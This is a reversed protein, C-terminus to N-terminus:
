VRPVSSQRSIQRYRHSDAQLAPWMSLGHIKDKESLHCCKKTFDVTGWYNIRFTKETQDRFPTPDSGKYAFGANNVLVDVKGYKKEISEFFEDHSKTDGITLPEFLVKVSNKDPLQAQMSQVAEIARKEDRCALIINQFLGSLGLQLAIFYGIGKNSGTVVAIRGASFTNM